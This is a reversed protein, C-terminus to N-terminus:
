FTVKKLDGFDDPNSNIGFVRKSNAPPLADNSTEGLLVRSDTSMDSDTYFSGESLVEEGSSNVFRQLRYSIRCTIHRPGSWVYGGMEGLTGDWVTAVNDFDVPYSM